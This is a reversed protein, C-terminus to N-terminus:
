ISGGLNMKTMFPTFDTCSYFLPVPVNTCGTTSMNTSQVDDLASNRSLSEASRLATGGHQTPLGGIALLSGSRGERVVAPMNREATLHPLQHWQLNDDPATAITDDHKTSRSLAVGYGNGEVPGDAPAGGIVCYRAASGTHLRRFFWRWSRGNPPAAVLWGWRSLVLQRWNADDALRDRLTTCACSARALTPGDGVHALVRDLLDLTLDLLQVSPAEDAVPEQENILPSVGPEASTLDVECSAVTASGASMADDGESEASSDDLEGAAQGLSRQLGSLLEM